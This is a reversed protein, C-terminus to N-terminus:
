PKAELKERLQWRTKPGKAETVKSRLTMLAKKSVKERRPAQNNGHTVGERIIPDDVEGNGIADPKQMKLVVINPHVDDEDSSFFLVFNCRIYHFEEKFVIERLNTFETILFSM